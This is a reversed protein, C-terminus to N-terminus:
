PLRCAASNAAKKVAYVEVTDRDWGSIQVSGNINELEV